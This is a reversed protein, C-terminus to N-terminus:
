PKTPAKDEKPPPLVQEEMSRLKELEKVRARAEQLDDKLSSIETEAKSKQKQLDEITKNKDPASNLYRELEAQRVSLRELRDQLKASLEAQRVRETAVVQDRPVPDFGPERIGLVVGRSEMPTAPLRQDWRGQADVRYVTHAEQMERRDFSPTRGMYYAHIADPYRVRTSDHPDTSRGEPWGDMVNRTYSPYPLNGQMSGDYYVDKPKPDHHACSMLLGSWALGLFALAHPRRQDLPNMWFSM